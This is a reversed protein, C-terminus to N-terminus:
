GRYEQVFILLIAPFIVHLTKSFFLITNLTYPFIHHKNTYLAAFPSRIALPGKFPMHPHVTIGPTFECVQRQRSINIGPTDPRVSTAHAPTQGHRDLFGVWSTLLCCLTSAHAPNIIM